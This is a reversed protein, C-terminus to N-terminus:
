LMNKYRRLANQIIFLQINRAGGVVEEIKSADCLDDVLTNDTVSIGGMQQQVEYLIDHSLRSCLYKAQSSVGAVWKEAAPSRKEAFLVKEDYITAAQLALSTAATLRSLLDALTFGVGQFNLIPQGFQHRLNTYIIAYILGTWSVGLASGILGLREPVLGEFLRNYGKGDDALIFEKPVKVNNLITHAIHIRPVSNIKLRRTEVGWERKIMSQVMSGRPNSTDYVGYVVFYDAKAGNTTFVKEGNYVVGDDVKTCRTKMNVSDSGNEPETIGISGVKKGSMLDDQIKQIDSSEGGEHFYHFTPNACLIGSSLRGLELQCDLCSLQLGLLIDKKMGYPTFDNWKNIRQMYGHKGLEPFLEYVAKSRDIKPELDMCFEQLQNSYEVEEDTLMPFLNDQLIKFVNELSMKELIHDAIIKEQMITLM